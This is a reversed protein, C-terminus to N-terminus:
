YEGDATEIVFDFDGSWIRYDHTCVVDDNRAFGCLKLPNTVVKM